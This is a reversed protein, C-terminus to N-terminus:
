GPMGMEFCTVGAPITATRQASRTWIHREISYWDPDDYTGGAIGRLGPRRQSIWTVTTGCRPCFEVRIWRGSEDSHHQYSTRPAANFEIQDDNFYIPISFASGSRRQCFRCHCVNSQLPAGRTRYRIAGCLCGGDHTESMM